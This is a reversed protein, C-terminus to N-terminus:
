VGADGPQGQEALALANAFGSYKPQDIAVQNVVSQRLHEALGDLDLTISGDRLGRTLRWRLAQLDEDSHLLAQLREREQRRAKAGVAEERLVIDLSNSAVRAMFQARGSTEKMVDNRLFDRVSVLLEDVRPMDGATDPDPDPRLVDVPGPILHNVCDVQCESSRRGIAPREVTQDPGIRYHEAMGLCGIAWWFSGFVEWFKVRDPEVAEGSVSEYGDFLDQYEGFGGVPLDSRGFRWSNTCIWGLDRMPDGIHAVEWDLVAIVGHRSVMVNGNRFDNHVLKMPADAPLHDLLWRGAYDIMPHATDWAKYRDWTQHVYQEPTMRSLVDDLGTVATDIAHIRALIEGCQYALGPRVEDLDPSRAIRAGLTEGELWEMVFGDGLGDAEQLVYHVEPEPVGTAAASRMLLAEVALGPHGSSAEVHLGGPARRMAFPKNGASTRVVLRYTEQSAGGSLRDASVLAEVGSVERTLVDELLREFEM